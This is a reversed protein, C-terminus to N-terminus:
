VDDIDAGDLLVSSLEPRLGNIAIKPTRGGEPDNGGPTVANVGPQLLALQPFSRANLPLDRMQKQDVPGSLAGNVLNIPTAEGQVKIESTVAGVEMRLDVVASQGVQLRVNQRIITQFGPASARIEYEGPPLAPARWLGNEDTVLTHRAGTGLNLILVAANPLVGSSQDSIVGQLSAGVTQASAAVVAAALILMVRITMM